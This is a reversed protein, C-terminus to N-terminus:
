YYSEIPVNQAQKMDEPFNGIISKTLLVKQGKWFIVSLFYIDYQHM